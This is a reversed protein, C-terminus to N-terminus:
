SEILELVWGGVTVIINKYPARDLDRLMRQRKNQMFQEGELRPKAVLQLLVPHDPEMLKEVLTTISSGMDN